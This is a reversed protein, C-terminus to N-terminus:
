HHCRKERSFRLFTSDGNRRKPQLFVRDGPQLQSPDTIDNYRMFRKLGIQYSTALDNLSEGEQLTICKIDNFLYIREEANVSTLSTNVVEPNGTEKINPKVESKNLSAFYAAREEEKMDWQHLDYDEVCKILVNAYHPNTAYGCAKLGKAWAKYDM